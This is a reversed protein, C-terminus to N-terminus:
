FSQSNLGQLVDEIKVPYENGCASKKAGELTKYIQATAINSTYSHRSNPKAVFMGSYKGNNTCRLAYM